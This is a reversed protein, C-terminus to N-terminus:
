DIRCGVPLAMWFRVDLIIGVFNIFSWGFGESEVVGSAVAELSRAGSSIAALRAVVWLVGNRQKVPDIM